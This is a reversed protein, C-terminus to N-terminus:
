EDSFSNFLPEITNLVSTLTEPSILNPADAFDAVRKFNKILDPSTEPPAALLSDRIKQLSTRLVSENIQLRGGAVNKRHKLLESMATGLHAGIEIQWKEQGAFNKRIASLLEGAIARRENGTSKALKDFLPKEAAWEAPVDNAMETLIGDLEKEGGMEKILASDTTQLFSLFMGFAWVPAHEETPNAPVFNYVIVGTVKVPQGQLLTPSFKSVRAAQVAAQRLLPHGSVANASIVDGNEDITVQVNVAGSANIARAAAPYEPKPLSTAKGNLVGGSITKVPTPTQASANTLGFSLVLILIFFFKNQM